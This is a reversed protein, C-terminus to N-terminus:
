LKLKCDGAQPIEGEQNDNIYNENYKYHKPRWGFSIAAKMGLMAEPKIAAAGSQM